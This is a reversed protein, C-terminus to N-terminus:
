VDKDRAEIKKRIYDVRKKTRVKIKGFGPIYIGKLSKYDNLDGFRIIDRIEKYYDMIVYRVTRKDLQFEEALDSIIENFVPDNPM